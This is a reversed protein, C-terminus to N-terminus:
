KYVPAVIDRVFFLNFYFYIIAFFSFFYSVLCFKESTLLEENHISCDLGSINTDGPVLWMNEEIEIAHASRVIINQDIIQMYLSSLLQVNKGRTSEIVHALPDSYDVNKACDHLKDKFLYATASRQPDCDYLLVRKGHKVMARAIAIANTTKCVGGKQTYFALITVDNKQKKYDSVRGEEQTRKAM